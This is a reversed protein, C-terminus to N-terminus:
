PITMAVRFGRNSSTDKPDEKERIVARLGNSNNRFYGGRYVVRKDCRGLKLASGDTTVDIYSDQYCDEVWEWVNGSMDYLGWANAVKGAVPHTKGASNADFWAVSGANDSGCYALTKGARCSYEWESESPLRYAKGTKQSLRRVYEQADNWSVQEVPCTEGCNKHDSPSTGMVFRWQGQTVETTALAFPKAFTVTHIPIENRSNGGMQFTGVPIIVMEPCDVCDKFQGVRAEFLKLTELKARADAVYRGNPYRILYGQVTNSEHAVSVQKWLQSDEDSPCAYAEATGQCRVGADLIGLLKVYNGGLEASREKMTSEAEEIDCSFFTGKLKSYSVLGLRKCNVAPAASSLEIDYTEDANAPAIYMLLFFINIALAIKKTRIRSM